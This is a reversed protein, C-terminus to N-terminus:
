AAKASTPVIMPMILHMATADGAQRLMLPAHPSQGSIEVTDGAIHALAEALLAANMAITFYTTTGAFDAAVSSANDGAGDSEANIQLGNLSGALTLKRSTETFLGALKVARALDAKAAVARMAYSQPIIRAVDPFTGDIARTVVAVDPTAIQIQDGARLATITATGASGTLMASLRTMATGPLVFAVPQAVPATLTITNRSLRLGDSATLTAQEGSFMISVGNLVPRSSDSAAAFAVDALATALASAAVTTLPAGDAQPLTPFESAAIGALTCEYSGCRLTTRETRPDHEITIPKDPLGGAIDNLLKYPLTTAGSASITVGETATVTVGIELDTARFFLSGGATGAILVHSLVPLTTRNAVAAGTLKLASRLANRTVTIRLGDAASVVPTEQVAKPAAKKSSRAATAAIATITNANM